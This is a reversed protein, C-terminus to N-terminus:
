GMFCILTKQFLSERYIVTV